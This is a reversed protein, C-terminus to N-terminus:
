AEQIEQVRERVIEDLRDRLPAFKIRNAIDGAFGLILLARADVLSIGRAQLYFLMEPDLQGVTAGHTCKVDDAFIELQPKTDIQAGDSLLLAKNTQKADTKQADQRVIIKGNFVGRAKGGLIGKYLEHSGNHPLAHDITTHTDVLQTGGALYLGNLTTDGGQGGLIAAIDNRAIAGGLVLNHSRCVTERGTRVVQTGVHYASLSERQVRYHNLIARHGAFLESVTNTFYTQGEAGAYTEIVSGESHEGAVVLLRPYTVAPEAGGTSYFVVHVPREIVTDRAFEIYAGDEMFATNLTTFASGHDRSGDTLRPEVVSPRTAVLQALSGVQLGEPLNVTRSLSPAFRGNVFVVEASVADGFLHASLLAADLQVPDADVFSTAVIPAVPTFRWDEDRTTPFGKATFRALAEDRATSL